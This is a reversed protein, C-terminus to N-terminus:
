IQGRLLPHERFRQTHNKCSEQARCSLADIGARVSAWIDRVQFSAHQRYCLTHHSSSGPLSTKCHTQKPELPFATTQSQNKKPDLSFVWTKCHNQGPEFFFQPKVNTKSLTWRFLLLRVAAKNQTFPFAITKCQNQKPDLSCNHNQM